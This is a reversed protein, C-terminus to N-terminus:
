GNRGVESLNVCLEEVGGWVCVCVCVCLIGHGWVYVPCGLGHCQM